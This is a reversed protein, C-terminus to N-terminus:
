TMLLSARRRFTDKEWSPSIPLGHCINLGRQKQTISRYHQVVLSLVSVGAALHLAAEPPGVQSAIVQADGAVQHSAPATDNDQRMLAVCVTTLLNRHKRRQEAANQKDHETM